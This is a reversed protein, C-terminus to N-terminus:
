LVERSGGKDRCDTRVAALLIRNFELDSVDRRQECESLSFVLTRATTWFARLRAEKNVWKLEGGVM